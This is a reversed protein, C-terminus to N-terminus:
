LATIQTRRMAHMQHAGRRRESRFRFLEEPCQRPYNVHVRVVVPAFFIGGDLGICVILSNSEVFTKCEEVPAHRCQANGRLLFLAGPKEDVEGRGGIASDQEGEEEEM